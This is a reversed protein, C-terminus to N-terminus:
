FNLIYLFCGEKTQTFTEEPNYYVKQGIYGVESLILSVLVVSLFVEMNDTIVKTRNKDTRFMALRYLQQSFIVWKMSDLLDM